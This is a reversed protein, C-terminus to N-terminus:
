FASQSIISDSHGTHRVVNVRGQLTTERTLRAAATGGSQRWAATQCLGSQHVPLPLEPGTQPKPGQSSPDSQITPNGRSRTEPLASFAECLPLTRCYPLLFMSEAACRAMARM